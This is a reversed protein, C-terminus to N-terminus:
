ELRLKQSTLTQLGRDQASVWFWGDDLRYDITATRSTSQGIVRSRIPPPHHMTVNESFERSDAMTLWPLATCIVVGLVAITEFSRFSKM